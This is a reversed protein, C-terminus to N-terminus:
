HTEMGHGHIASSEVYYLIYALGIGVLLSVILKGRDHSHFHIEPLLDSLAIFPRAHQSNLIAKLRM